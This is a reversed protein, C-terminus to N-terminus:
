QYMMLTENNYFLFSQIQQDSKRNIENVPQQLVCAQQELPSKFDRGVSECVAIFGM